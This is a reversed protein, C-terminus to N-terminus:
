KKVATCVSVYSGKPGPIAGSILLVNRETDIKVVKLNQITVKEDGYQGAMNLGKIVKSPDSNSGTSGLSRHTPGTGHTMKLRSHNWRKIAGSFGHGKTYGGVDVFEGVAFTSCKIQAGVTLEDYNNLDFEMIVRKPTVGAKKFHGQLPKSVAKADDFACQVANYGDREVTKKQVVVMPGALVATVPIVRGKDDFIQTMGLKKGIIAKMIIKNPALSWVRNFEICSSVLSKQIGM